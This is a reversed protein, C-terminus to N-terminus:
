DEKKSKSILLLIKNLNSAKSPNMKAYKLNANSIKSLFGLDTMRVKKM